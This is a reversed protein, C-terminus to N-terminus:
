TVSGADAAVDAVSPDAFVVSSKKTSNATAVCTQGVSSDLPLALGFLSLVVQMQVCFCCDDSLM